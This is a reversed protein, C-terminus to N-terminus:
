FNSIGKWNMGLEANHGIKNLILCKICFCGERHCIKLSGGSMEKRLPFDRLSM